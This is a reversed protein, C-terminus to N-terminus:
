NQQHKSQAGFSNQSWTVKEKKKKKLNFYVIHVWFNIGVDIAFIPGGLPGISHYILRNIIEHLEFM